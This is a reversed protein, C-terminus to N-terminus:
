EQRIPEFAIPAGIPAGSDVDIRTLTNSPEFGWAFEYRVGAATAAYVDAHNHHTNEYAQAALDTVCVHDNGQWAFVLPEYLGSNGVGQGVLVRVLYVVDGSAAVFELAEGTAPAGCTHIDPPETDIDDGGDVVGRDGTCSALLTMATLLITMLATTPVARHPM